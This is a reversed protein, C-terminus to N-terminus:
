IQFAKRVGPTLLYIFVAISFGTTCLIQIFGMGNWLNLLAVVVDVGTAIIGLWWAWKRLNLAGFAVILHLVPGIFMALAVLIGAGGVFAALPGLFAAATAGFLIISPICLGFLGIVLQLVALVTIGVPRQNAPATSYIDSM